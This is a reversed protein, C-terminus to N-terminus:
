TNNEKFSRIRDIERKRVREEARDEAMFRAIRLATRVAHSTHQRFAKKLIRITKEHPESKGQEIARLAQVSLGCRSALEEQTVGRYAIVEETANTNPNLKEITCAQLGREYNGGSAQAQAKRQELEDDTLFLGDRLWNFSDKYKEHKSFQKWQSKTLSKECSIKAEEEDRLHEYQRHVCERIYEPTEALASALKNIVDPRVKGATGNEIRSIMSAKLGAFAAFKSKSEFRKQERLAEIPIAFDKTTNM